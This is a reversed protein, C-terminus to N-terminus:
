VITNPCVRSKSEEASTTTNNGLVSIESIEFPQVAEEVGPIAYLQMNVLM